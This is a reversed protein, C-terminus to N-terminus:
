VVAEQVLSEILEIARPIAASVRTSLGITESDSPVLTEPECGVIRVNKIEAGMSRSLALVHMPNMSHPDLALGEGPAKRSAFDKEAPEILYITGPDGGRPAADVIIVRDYKDMLAYLLDVARIGFDKVVVNPPLRRQQMCRAVESGFADDGLFINGIGAVLIM